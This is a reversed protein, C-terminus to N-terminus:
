GLSRTRAVRTVLGRSWRRRDSGAGDDGARTGGLRSCGLVLCGCKMLCSVSFSCWHAARSRYRTHGGGAAGRAKCRPCGNLHYVLMALDLQGTQKSFHLQGRDISYYCELHQMCHQLRHHQHHRTCEQGTAHDTPKASGQMRECRFM